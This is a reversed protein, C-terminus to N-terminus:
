EKLFEEIKVQIDLDKNWDDVSYPNHASVSSAASANLHEIKLKELRKVNQASKIRNANILTQKDWRGAKSVLARIVLKDDYEFPLFKISQSKDIFDANLDLQEPITFGHSIIKHDDVPCDMEPLVSGAFFDDKNKKREIVVVSDIFARIGANGVDSNVVEMFLDRSSHALICRWEFVSIQAILSSEEDNQKLLETDSIEDLCFVEFASKSWRLLPVGKMSRAYKLFQIRSKQKDEKTTNKDGLVDLLQFPSFSKKGDKKNGKTVEDAMDWTLQKKVKGDTTLREGDLGYKCIYDYAQSGDRIDLGYENPRQLGVKECMNSWRNLFWLWEESQQALDLKRWRKSQANNDLLKTNPLPKESFIIFHFHPHWGNAGYRCELSRVYAVIGYRAKCKKWPTGNFFQQQASSLKPRLDEIDDGFEHRITFTLLQICLGQAKAQKFASRLENSRRESIISECIPCVAASGCSALGSLNYRETVPHRLVDIDKSYPVYSCYCTEHHKIHGNAKYKTTEHFGYLAKRSQTQRKYRLTLREALSQKKVDNAISVCEGTSEDIIDLGLPPQITGKYVLHAGRAESAESRAQVKNPINSKVEALNYDSMFQGGQQNMCFTENTSIVRLTIPWNFCITLFGDQLPAAKQMRRGLGYWTCCWSFSM